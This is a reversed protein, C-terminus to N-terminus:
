RKTPDTEPRAGSSYEGLIWPGGKESVCTTSIGPSTDTMSRLPDAPISGSMVVGM